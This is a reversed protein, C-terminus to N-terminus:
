KFFTLKVSLQSFERVGGKLIACKGKLFDHSLIEGVVLVMYLLQDINCFVFPM